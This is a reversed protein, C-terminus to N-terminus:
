GRQKVKQMTIMVLSWDFYTVNKNNCRSSASQNKHRKKRVKTGYKEAYFAPLRSVHCVYIFLSIFLITMFASKLKCLYVSVSNLYRVWVRRPSCQFYTDIGKGLTSHRYVWAHAYGTQHLPTCKCGRSFLFNTYFILIFLFSTSYFSPYFYLSNIRLLSISRNSVFFFNSIYM